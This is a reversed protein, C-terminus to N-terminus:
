SVPLSPYAPIFHSLPMSIYVVLHLISPQYSAVTCCLSVLETSQSWRSPHSLFPSLSVFSPPSIPINTYTHSILKTTCCFTACCHPAIISWYLHQFFFFLVVAPSVSVPDAIFLFSCLSRGGGIKKKRKKKKIKIPTHNIQLTTNTAPTHCLLDTISTCIDM